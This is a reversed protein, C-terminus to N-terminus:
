GSLSTYKRGAISPPYRRNSGEGTEAGSQPPPKTCTSPAQKHFRACPPAVTGGMTTGPTAGMTAGMTSLNCWAATDLPECRAVGGSREVFPRVFRTARMELAEETRAIFYAPLGLTQALDFGRKPGLVLLGTAMADAFAASQHVVSVSALNHTVPKGSAPDITHSYRIGDVEFFNRYDGSTAIAGRRIHVTAYHARSGANPHEIAINWTPGTPGPGRVKVEGGIDVLYRSAGLHDLHAALRDVAFGKAIASLDLQLEPIKKRLQGGRTGVHKWGVYARLREIAAPAPISPPSTRAGFGWLEVMPAVTVDFAGATLDSTELALRVVRILDRSGRQWDTSSLRNFRSLESDPEYTSMQAVIRNLLRYLEPNLSAATVGNPPDLVVVRFYTGMTPGNVQIREPAAQGCGAAVGAM